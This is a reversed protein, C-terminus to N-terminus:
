VEEVKEVEIRLHRFERNAVLLAKRFMSSMENVLEREQITLVPTFEMIKLATDIDRFTGLVMSESDFEISNVWGFIFGGQVGASKCTFDYHVGSLQQLLKVHELSLKLWFRPDATIEIKM